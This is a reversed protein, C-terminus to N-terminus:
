IFLRQQEYRHGQIKLKTIKLKYQNKNHKEKPLIMNIYKLSKFKSLEDFFNDEADSLMIHISEVNPFINYLTDIENKRIRNPFSNFNFNTSQKLRLIKPHYILYSKLKKNVHALAM